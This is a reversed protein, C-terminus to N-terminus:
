ISSECTTDMYRSIFMDPRVSSRRGKFKEQIDPRIASIDLSTRNLPCMSTTRQFSDESQVFSLISHEEQIGLDKEIEQIVIAVGVRVTKGAFEFKEICSRLLALTDSDLHKRKSTALFKYLERGAACICKTTDALEAPVDMFGAVADCDTAIQRSQGVLNIVSENYDVVSTLFKRLIYCERSYYKTTDSVNIDAYVM